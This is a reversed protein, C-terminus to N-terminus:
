LGSRGPTSERIGQKKAVVDAEACIARNASGNQGRRARPIEYLRGPRPGYRTGPRDGRRALRGDTVYWTRSTSDYRVPQLDGVPISWAIRPSM